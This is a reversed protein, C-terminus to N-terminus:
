ARLADIYQEFQQVVRVGLEEVEDNVAQLREPHERTAAGDPVLTSSM